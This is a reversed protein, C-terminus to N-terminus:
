NTCSASLIPDKSITKSLASLVVRTDATDEAYIVDFNKQTVSAFTATHGVPCGMLGSLAALHEGEGAATDKMISEFNQAVFVEKETNALVLGSADCNSTGSTIGFSQSGATGNTTAASIQNGNEPILLSGLGCGASGYGAAFAPASFILVGIFAFVFNKM